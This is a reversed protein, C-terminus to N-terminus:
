GRPIDFITAALPKEASVTIAQGLTAQVWLGPSLEVRQVLMDMGTPQTVSQNWGTVVSDGPKDPEPVEPQGGATRAARAWSALWSPPQLAVTGPQSPQRAKCAPDRCTCAPLTVTYTPDRQQLSLLLAPSSPMLFIKVPRPAQAHPPCCPLSAHSYGWCLILTMLGLM